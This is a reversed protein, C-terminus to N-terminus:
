YKGIIDLINGTNSINGRYKMYKQCKGQITVIKGNNRVNGTNSTNGQMKLIKWQNEGNICRKKIKIIKGM